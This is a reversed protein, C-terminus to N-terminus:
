FPVLVHFQGSPIQGNQGEPAQRHKWVHCQGKVHLPRDGDRGQLPGHLGILVDEQHGLPLDPHVRRLFLVQVGNARDGVDRLDQPQALGRDPHHHLPPLPGVQAAQPLRLGEELGM